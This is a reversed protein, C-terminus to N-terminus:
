LRVAHDHGNPKTGRAVPPLKPAAKKAAKRVAKKAKKPAAKVAKKAVKKAAKKATKKRPKAALQRDIKAIEAMLEDRRLKLARVSIKKSKKM